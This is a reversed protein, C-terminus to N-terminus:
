GLKRRGQEHNGGTILAFHIFVSGSIIGDFSAKELESIIFKGNEGGCFQFLETDAAGFCRAARCFNIGKGSAFEEKEAARNVEGRVFSNFILTKQRAPNAGAVAIKKM